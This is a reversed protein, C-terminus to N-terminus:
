IFNADTMLIERKIYVYTHVQMRGYMCVYMNCSQLGAHTNYMQLFNCIPATWYLFMIIWISQLVVTTTVLYCKLHAFNLVLYHTLIDAEKRSHQNGSQFKSHFTDQFEADM